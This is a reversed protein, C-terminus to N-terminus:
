PRYTIGGVSHGLIEVNSDHRQIRRGSRSVSREKPLFLRVSHRSESGRGCNMVPSFALRESRGFTYKESQERRRM